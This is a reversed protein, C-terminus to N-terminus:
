KDGWGYGRDAATIRRLTYVDSAALDAAVDPAFPWPDWAASILRGTIGDSEPSALYVCLSAANEIPMGGKAALDEVRNFYSTGIKEPGAAQLEKMLRTALAGPAVANVDIGFPRTEEALTETVRVLAAKSAGYASLGPQPATAGGGSLNIIKRHGTTSRGAKFCAIARRCSYVAGFLNVAIAHEWASWDVDEIPGIPGHIGANNFVVDIAGFATLATEYFDDIADVRAVDCIRAIIDRDPFEAKLATATVALDAPSRSCIAVDAGAALCHRAIELGLGQSGGTALVKRGLLVKESVIDNGALLYIELSQLESGL